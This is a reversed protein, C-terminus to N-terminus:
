LHSAHPTSPEVSSPISNSERRKDGRRDRWWQSFSVRHWPMRLFIDGDDGSDRRGRDKSAPGNALHRRTPSEPDDLEEDSVLVEADTGEDQTEGDISRAAELRNMANKEEMVLSTYLSFVDEDLYKRPNSEIFKLLRTFHPHIESLPVHLSFSLQAYVKFETTLVERSPISHVQDIEVLVQKIIDKM